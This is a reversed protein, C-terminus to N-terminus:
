KLNELFAGGAGGGRGINRYVPNVNKAGKGDIGGTTRASPNSNIKVTKKSTSEKSGLRDQRVDRLEQEYISQETPNRKGPAPTKNPNSNVKIIKKAM